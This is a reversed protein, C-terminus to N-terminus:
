GPRRSRGDGRASGHWSPASSVPLRAASLLPASSRRAPLRVPLQAFKREEAAPRSLQRELARGLQNEDLTIRGEQVDDLFASRAQPDGIDVGRDLASMAATKATGYRESDGAAGAFEKTAGDIASENEGTAASRPDRLGHV